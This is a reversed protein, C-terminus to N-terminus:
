REMRMDVSIRVGSGVTEIIKGTLNAKGGSEGGRGNLLGQGEGCKGQREESGSWGVDEKHLQRLKRGFSRGGVM